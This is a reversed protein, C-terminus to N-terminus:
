ACTMVFNTGGDVRVRIHVTIGMDIMTVIGLRSHCDMPKEVGLTFNIETGTTRAGNTESESNTTPRKQGLKSIMGNLDATHELATIQNM